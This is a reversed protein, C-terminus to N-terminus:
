CQYEQIQRARMNELYKGMRKRIDQRGQLNRVFDNFNIRDYQEIRFTEELQNSNFKSKLASKPISSESSLTTEQSSPSGFRVCKPSPGVVAEGECQGAPNGQLSVSSLQNLISDEIEKLAGNAIHSEFMEECSSSIDSVSDTDRIIGYEEDMNPSGVWLTKKKASRLRHYIRSSVSKVWEIGESPAAKTDVTLGQDKKRKLTDTLGLKPAPIEVEDENTECEEACVQATLKLEGDLSIDASDSNISSSSSYKLYVPYLNM